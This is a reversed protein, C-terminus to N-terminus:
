PFVKFTSHIVSDPLWAEAVVNIGRTTLLSLSSISKEGDALSAMYSHKITVGLETPSITKICKCCIWAANSIMNQGAADGTDFLLVIHLLAGMTYCTVGTLRTHQSYEEVKSQLLEINAQISLFYLILIKTLCHIM